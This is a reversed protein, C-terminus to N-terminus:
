AIVNISTDTIARRAPAAEVAVDSGGPGHQSPSRDSSAAHRPQQHDRHQPGFQSQEGGGDRRVDVDFREIRVNQEALRDRLTPLNDLLLQRATATETEVSATLVGHRVSLELRLSGLEPPSLRLSLPGGREQATHIARAVRSIFRAPDVHPMEQGDGARHAVRAGLPGHRDFRGFTTLLNDKADATTKKAESEAAADIPVAAVAEVLRANASVAVVNSDAIARAGAAPRPRGAQPRQEAPSEDRHGADDTEEGSKAASLEREHEGAASTTEDEALVAAVTESAAPRQGAQEPTRPSQSQRGEGANAKTERQPRVDRHKKTRHENAPQAPADTGAPTLEVAAAAAVGSEATEGLSVNSEQQLAHNSEPAEAKHDAAKDAAPKQKAIAPRPKAHLAPQDTVIASDDDAPRIVAEAEASNSAAAPSAVKTPKDRTAVVRVDARRSQPEVHEALLPHEKAVPVELTPTDGAPDTEAPADASKSPQGGATALTADAVQDADHEHTQHTDDAAADRQDAAGTARAAPSEAPPPASNEASRIAPPEVSTSRRRQSDHQDGEARPPSDAPASPDHPGVQRLHADFPPGDHRPNGAAFPGGEHRPVTLKLLQDITTGSM